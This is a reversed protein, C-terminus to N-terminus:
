RAFLRSELSSGSGELIAPSSKRKWTYKVPQFLNQLLATTGQHTAPRCWKVATTAVTEINSSIKGEAGLCQACFKHVNAVM